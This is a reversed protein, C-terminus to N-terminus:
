NGAPNLDPDEGGARSLDRGSFGYNEVNVRSTADFPVNAQNYAGRYSSQDQVRVHRTPAPQAMDADQAFVPTAVAASLLLVASLAKINTM